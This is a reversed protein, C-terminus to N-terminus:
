IQDPEPEGRRRLPLHNPKLLRVRVGVIVRVRVRVRVRIPSAVSKTRSAQAAALALYTIDGQQTPLILDSVRVWVRFWVRVRVRGNLQLDPRRWHDSLSLFSPLMALPSTTNTRLAFGCSGLGLM